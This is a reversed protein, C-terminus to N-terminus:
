WIKVLCGLMKLKIIDLVQNLRTQVVEFFHAVGVATRRGAVQALAHAESHLVLAADESLGLQQIFTLLSIFQGYM